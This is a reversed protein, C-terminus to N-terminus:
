GKVGWEVCGAGAPVCPAGPPPKPAPGKPPKDGLIADAEARTPACDSCAAGLFVNSPLGAAATFFPSCVERKWGWERRFECECKRCRTWWLLPWTRSIGVVRPPTAPRKMAKAGM